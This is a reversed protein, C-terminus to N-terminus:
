EFSASLLSRWFKPIWKAAITDFELCGHDKCIGVPNWSALSSIQKFRNSLVLKKPTCM